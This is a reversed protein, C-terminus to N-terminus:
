LDDGRPDIFVLGAVLDVIEWPDVAVPLTTIYYEKPLPVGYARLSLTFLLGIFLGTVTAM